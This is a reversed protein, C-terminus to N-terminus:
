RRCFDFPERGPRFGAMPLPKGARTRTAGVLAAAQTAIRLSAQAGANMTVSTSVGDHYEDPGMVGTVDYSGSGTSMARTTWYQAINKLVPWARDKLWATDGTALYYQWQALAIDSNVHIEDKGQPISPSTV